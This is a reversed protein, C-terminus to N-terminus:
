RCARNRTSLAAQASFNDQSSIQQELKSMKLHTLTLDIVGARPKQAQATLKTEFEVQFSPM